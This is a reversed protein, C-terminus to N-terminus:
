SGIPLAPAACSRQLCKLGFYAEVGRLLSYHDYGQPDTSGGPVGPGLQVAFVRGGAPASPDTEDFTVVVDAGAARLRPITRSLWGDGVCVISPCNPFHQYCDAGTEGHMDDCMNPTVFSLDPLAAPDMHWYPVDLRGCRRTGALNAYYVPPNHHAVYLSNTDDTRECNRRMSEQFASWTFGSTSLQTFLDRAQISAPDCGADTCGDNSGSTMALYNPLSPHFLGKYQTYLKGNCILGTGAFRGACNIYPAESANGVIQSYGHNEMVIIVVPVRAVANSRAPPLFVGTAVVTAVAAFLRM